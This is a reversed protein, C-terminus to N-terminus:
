ELGYKLLKTADEFRGSSSSKMIVCLVEQEGDDAAAILCKGAMTSTGTKLGIAKSYYRPSNRNILSNTNEWTIDEGSAFINRSVSKQSIDMITENRIAALGILGMDLATTYQGLADYGDPTKFCSNKVGIKKAKQNMLKTFALIAEEKPAAENKLSKRGVYAAAAYAADNGSPLLMGELLNQITLVQGQKINAKSSDSAIMTIEDGITVEEDEKCWDLTVLCTLLKATSAPFVAEIPNKYYLVERTDADFLIAAEAKLDLDPNDIDLMTEIKSDFIMEPIYAKYDVENCDNILQLEPATLLASGLTNAAGEANGPDISSISTSSTSADSNAAEGEADVWDSSDRTDADATEGAQGPQGARSANEDIRSGDALIDEAASGGQTEKKGASEPSSAVEPRNASDKEKAALEKEEGANEQIDKGTVDEKTFNTQNGEIGSKTGKDIMYNVSVFLGASVLFGFLILGLIKKRRMKIESEQATNHAYYLKPDNRRMKRRM